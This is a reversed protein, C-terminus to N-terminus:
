AGRASVLAHPASTRVMGRAAPVTPTPSPGERVWFDYKRNRLRCRCGIEHLYAQARGGLMTGVERM